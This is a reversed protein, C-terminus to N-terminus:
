TLAGVIASAATILILGGLVWGLRGAAEGSEGRRNQFFMTIGVVIIGVVGLTTGIWAVWGIITQINGTGPPQAPNIDIARVLSVIVNM